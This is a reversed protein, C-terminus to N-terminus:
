SHPLHRERAYIDSVWRLIPREKWDAIRATFTAPLSLTGYTPHEAPNVLPALLSAAAIDARSMQDGTLYPRGDSLRKELWDLERVLIESSADGQEAGLDMKKIMMPVIRSWGLTVAIKQLFPLDRSFIPRVSAPNTLLVHSYYFRRVHVGIIDDIRAETTTTTKIDNGSLSSTGPARNIEGWDIISASGKIVGEQTHLFPLSGGSSGLKKAIKRNMGPMTPHLRYPIAFRDLAWRAKECYHSIAFIYLTPIAM